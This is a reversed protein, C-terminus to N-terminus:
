ISKISYCPASPSLLSDRSPMSGIRSRDRRQLRPRFGSHWQESNDPHSPQRTPLDTLWFVQRHVQKTPSSHRGLSFPRRIRFESGPAEQSSASKGSLRLSEPYRNPIFHFLTCDEPCDHGSSKKNQLCSFLFIDNRVQKLDSLSASLFEAHRISPM